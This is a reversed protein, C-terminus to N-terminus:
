TDPIVEVVIYVLAGLGGGFIIIWLWFGDPRRRIFHVIAVAQLVFGYPLFHFFLGMVRLAMTALATQLAPGGKARNQRLTPLIVFAHEEANM